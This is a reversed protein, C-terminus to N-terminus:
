INIGEQELYKKLEKRMRHLTVKVSSQSCGFMKAIDEISDSYWYRRVFIMRNKKPLGKLFASLLESIDEGGDSYEKGPICNELEKTLEIVEAHRKKAKKWDIMNLAINRCLTMLYAQLNDPRSPPITNWAKMLTDNVCEKADEESGLMREAMRQMKGGYSDSTYKIADDDREFFLRIIGSDNM